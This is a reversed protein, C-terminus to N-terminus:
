FQVPAERLGSDENGGIVGSHLDATTDDSTNVDIKLFVPALIAWGGFIVVVNLASRTAAFAIHLM